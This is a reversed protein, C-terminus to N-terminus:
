KPIYNRLDVADGVFITMKRTCPCEVHVPEDGTQVWNGSNVYSYVFTRALNGNVKVYGITNGQVGSAAMGMVTYNDFKVSQEWGKELLIKQLEHDLKIGSSHYNTDTDLLTSKYIKGTTKFEGSKVADAHTDGSFEANFFMKNDMMEADTADSEVWTYEQPLEPINWDFAQPAQEVPKKIPLVQKYYFLLFLAVLLIFILSIKRVM